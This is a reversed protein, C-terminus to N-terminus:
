KLFDHAKFRRQVSRRTGRAFCLKGTSSVPRSLRLGRALVAAKARAVRFFKEM